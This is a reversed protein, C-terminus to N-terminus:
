PRRAHQFNYLLRVLKDVTCVTGNSKSKTLVMKFVHLVVDSGGLCWTVTYWWNSVLAFLACIVRFLPLYVALFFVQM